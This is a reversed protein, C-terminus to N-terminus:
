VSVTGQVAPAAGGTPARIVTSTVNVSSSDPRVNSACCTTDIAARGASRAASHSMHGPIPQGRFNRAISVRNSILLATAFSGRVFYATMVEAVARFRVESACEANVTPKHREAARDQRSGSSHPRRARMSLLALAGKCSEAAFTVTVAQTPCRRPDM